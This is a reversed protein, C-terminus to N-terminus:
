LPPIPTRLTSPILPTKKEETDHHTETYTNPNRISLFIPAFLPRIFSSLFSPHSSTLNPKKHNLSQSHSRSRIPSKLLTIPPHSISLILYSEHSSAHQPLRTNKSQHSQQIHTSAGSARSLGRCITRSPSETQINTHTPFQAIMDLNPSHTSESFRM